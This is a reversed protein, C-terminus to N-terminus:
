LQRGQGEQEKTLVPVVKWRIGGMESLFILSAIGWRFRLQLIGAVSGGAM